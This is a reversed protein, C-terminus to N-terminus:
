LTTEWLGHINCYERVSIVESLSVNFNAEPKQGPTLEARYVKDETLVEILTIYHEEIMPHEVDGVKVFIGNRTEEVVPLHKENGTDKTKAELKEMKEGCCVLAPQGEHLVETVNGCVNCKYIERLKTM